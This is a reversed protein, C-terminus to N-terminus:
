AGPRTASPRCPRACSRTRQARTPPSLTELPPGLRCLPTGVALRHLWSEELSTVGRMYARQKRGAIFVETYCLFAPMLSADAEDAASQPHVFLVRSAVSSQRAAGGGEGGGGEVEEGSADLIASLGRMVTSSCAIYPVWARGKGVGAAACLESVQEPPARRAVRELMGAGIAQRLLTETAPSPPPLPGPRSVRKRKRSAGPAPLAAAEEEAVAALGQEEEEDDDDPGGSRVRSAEAADASGFTGDARSFNPASEGVETTPATAAIGNPGAGEGEGEGEGGGGGEGEDDGTTGLADKVLRQLQRSLYAGERMSKARLFNAKCFAADARAVVVAGRGRVRLPLSAGCYEGSARAGNASSLTALPERGDFSALRADDEENDEAGGEEGGKRGEEMEKDDEAKAASTAPCAVDEVVVVINPLASPLVVITVVIM